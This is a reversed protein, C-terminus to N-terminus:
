KKFMHTFKNMLDVNVEPKFAGIKDYGSLDLKLSKSLGTNKCFEDTGLQPWYLAALREADTDFDSYSFVTTAENSTSGGNPCRGPIVVLECSEKSELTDIKQMSKILGNGYVEIKNVTKTFKANKLAIYGKTDRILAGAAFELAQDVYEDLVKVEITYLDLDSSYTVKTDEALYEPRSFDYVAFGAGYTGYSYRTGAVVSHDEIIKGTRNGKSDKEWYREPLRNLPEWALRDPNFSPLEKGKLTSNDAYKAGAAQVYTPLAPDANTDSGNAKANVPQNKKSKSLNTLDDNKAGMIYKYLNPDDAALFEAGGNPGRRDAHFDENSFSQINYGFNSKLGDLVGGLADLRTVGSVTQSFSGKKGSFASYTSRIGVDINGYGAAKTKVSADTLVYFGTQTINNNNTVALAYIAAAIEKDDTGLKYGTAALMDDVSYIKEGQKTIAAVDTVNRQFDGVFFVGLSTDAVDKCAALSVCLVSVIMVVAICSLIAKTKKSKFSKM